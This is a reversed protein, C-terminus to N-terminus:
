KIVIKQSKAENGANVRLLYTGSGLGITRASTAADAVTTDYEGVLVGSLTYVRCHAAANAKTSAIGTGAAAVRLIGTTSLLSSTDWEMGSPLEPLDLTPNGSFRKCTWLELEDGVAPTYDSGLTLKLTGNFILYNDAALFSRSYNSNQNSKVFLNATAGASITMNKKSGLVGTPEESSASGATLTAGSKLSLGGVYGIGKIVAGDDITVANSGMISTTSTRSTQLTLMGEAIEVAGISGQATNTTISWTGTGVKKVPSAFSGSFSIDDNNSGITYVGSGSFTGTGTFKGLTISHGTSNEDTNSFTAGEDVNVTCNALSTINKAMVSYDAAKISIIGTFNSMDWSLSNRSFRPYVNLTGAGSLAGKYDCRGDLYLNGSKGSPIEMDTYDSSYSGTTNDHNLTVGVGNFTVGHPFCKDGDTPAQITGQNIVMRGFTNGASLDLTGAGSKFLTDAAASKIAHNTTLTVGSPVELTAGGTGVNFTQDTATSASVSFTAANSITIQALSDGLAGYDVGVSNALKNVVLKGGNVFTGGSFRNENNITTTAAGSKTLTGSGVISDGTVTYALTNNNFVVSKPSVAEGITVNGNAANDDFVVDDGTVFIEGTGYVDLFNETESVDWTNAELTGNWVIQTNDRMGQVTMYLKGDELSLSAKAGSLGTLKIDSLDGDVSGIEGLLYQGVVLKGDANSTHNVVQIIPQSYTPGNKWDVTGIKLVNAKVQDSSVDDGYVDLVLRSGFNMILSDTEITGKADKGGPYITANYNAEIGKQFKGGNSLLTTHRNLWVRSSQMTGDFSLTGAWVDTSGTYTEVVNPLVLVGDGQKVLRMSGAFAGGTLTHTYTTTTINNNDDHGQVWTPANDTLIYPTAGDSVTYTADETADLLIHKDNQATGITAGSELETRGTLTLPPPAVTIGEMEGLYYSVHPTQNYGCMQWVMANRYQHDHWLSYNRWKTEDTTTYIRINNDATRMIVEERWDGLIDGQYDPTGKTDNNTMSGELVAINGVKAKVIRGETNKGSLYDFSEECLDGDWYIRFNQTISFSSKSYGEAAAHSAACILNADRSSVGQAGPIEDVFKGMLCRGDDNGGTTRYYIKSTTADRFNNNPKEENCAFIEQGHTYPDFDGCHQSDGHGLGSTSLGKGNDDIVMSGYVIEDRGDWDVDAIGFNHYGQAYWKSSSNNCNWRWRETLKHTSADVDLAIMKHRTYIGRALFISPKKGDLFPAGFFHKTSRHGYGDGWATALDTEGSELRKLPYEMQDYVEGTEGNLYLLYEAGEHIFWQGSQGSSSRYNKSADGIVVTTGDAKHITTGDAARMVAEAKGDQDWDFAVINNENNQFDGMNPGLDIWWLRKGNLKYVEIIAYEGNYGEPLYGNNADSRNDFKLLIEVQGDGDVDACCADNPVYTSALTGHDMKVELYNNEWPTVADCKTQATGRVVAEVQYSSNLSGSADTYNSVNLPTSNLKTGNRYINYTVDYYEGAPIRWSCFVGSSTKVAVLGRDLADTMRQASATLAAAGLMMALLKRKM